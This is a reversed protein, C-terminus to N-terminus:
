IKVKTSRADRTKKTTLMGRAELLSCVSIFESQGIAELEQKRCVKCYNEHLQFFEFTALSLNKVSRTKKYCSVKGMTVEKSKVQKLSLVLSCLALKQQLPMAAASASLGTVKSGYVENVTKM